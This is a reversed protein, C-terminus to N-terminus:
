LLLVPLSQNTCYDGQVISRATNVENLTLFNLSETCCCCNKKILISNLDPFEDITDGKVM